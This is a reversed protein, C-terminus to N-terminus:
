APLGYEDYLLDGHALSLMTGSLRLASHRCIQLADAYIADSDQSELERKKARLGEIVAQTLTTKEVDAIETALAYAEDSKINMQMGM